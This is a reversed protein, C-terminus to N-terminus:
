ATAACLVEVTYNTELASEDWDEESGGFQWLDIRIGQNCFAKAASPDYIASELIDQFGDVNATSEDGAHTRFTISLDCRLVGQLSVSHAEVSKIDVAVSPLSLQERRKADVVPLDPNNIAATLYRIAESKLTETTM